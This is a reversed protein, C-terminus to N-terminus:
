SILILKFRYTSFLIQVSHKSIFSCNNQKNGKPLRSRCNKSKKKINSFEGMAELNNIGLEVTNNLNSLAKEEKLKGKLEKWEKYRKCQVICTKDKSYAFRLDIGKDRGDAFSEIFIDERAQLLDRSFCEFESPQLIKFDYDLM